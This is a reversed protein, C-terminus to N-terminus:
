RGATGFAFNLTADVVKSNLGGKLSKVQGVGLKVGVGKSIDMGVFLMPQTVAGGSTDVLGGGAAGILVEGGMYLGAATKPSRYGMGFLGVAYGGSLGGYACHAQGSLYLQENMYINAKLAIGNLTDQPANKHRVTYYHETGVMWEYEDVKGETQPAYPHDLDIILNASSYSARFLGGPSMAYGTDLSLHTDRTLNATAYVGLKNLQGGGVNILNPDGGGMGVAVRTGVTLHEKWIPMEAGLTGLFEAYGSANGSAAGSTEIGWYTNPTFFHDFRVGAYGISPSVAGRKTRYSGLVAIARDFGVGQRERVTVIKGAADSSLYRLDTDVSVLMGLQSSNIFGNQFSVSSYSLGTRVGSFNWLLDVHPRVMLGGGVSGPGGGGGGLFLGSQVELDSVLAHRWAGEIGITFFGGRTGTISGYAAPGVSVEPMVQMLYTTGLLGMKENAPLSLREYGLKLTAARSGSVESVEAAASACLPFVFLSTGLVIFNRLCRM